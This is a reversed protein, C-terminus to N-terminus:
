VQEARKKWYRMLGGVSMHPPNAAQYRAIEQNTYHLAKLQSGVMENFAAIMEPMSKEQELLKKVFDAYHLLTAELKNLHNEYDTHEGFHALYMKKPKLNKLIAISEIWKEIDIDPPPCPPIVVGEQGIKVGAIDGTFVVEELQWAIHHNAHGPTHWSKLSLDGIKIVEENETAHILEKPIPNMAGWLRDMEGLYIKRASEYLKEPQALHGAGFPHVYIKAGNKAFAWAAGAHDFHIHTLFVHRIDELAYGKAEIGKRLTEFTSYPGTEILIPGEASEIIYNAITKENGLFELDITHIM